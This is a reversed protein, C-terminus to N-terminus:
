GQSAALIRSIQCLPRGSEQRWQNFAEQTAKLDRQSTPAKTVVGQEILTKVVDESLIFTDKGVFRLFYFGTNGGLRNGRAKLTKLLGIIDDGPWDAVFNGFSGHEKAIELVFSANERVSLIKKAHRVIRTDQTLQELQEDSRHANAKPNFGAFAEEFGQWKHEIIKWVFGSRFVNRTMEALYRNDPLERLDTDCIPVPLLEELASKGKNAVARAEIQDFTEM